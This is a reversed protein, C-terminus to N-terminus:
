FAKPGRMPGEGLLRRIDSFSAGSNNEGGGESRQKEYEMNIRSIFWERWSLPLSMAESFTFGGYRMLLFAPELFIESDSPRLGFFTPGWRSMSRGQM